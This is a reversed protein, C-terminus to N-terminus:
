ELSWVANLSCKFSEMTTSFGFIIYGTVDKTALRSLTVKATSMYSSLFDCLGQGSADLFGTADEPAVLVWRWFTTKHNYM